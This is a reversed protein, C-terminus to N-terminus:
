AGSKGAKLALVRPHIGRSYACLALRAAANERLLLDRAEEMQEPTLLNDGSRTFASRPAQPNKNGVM